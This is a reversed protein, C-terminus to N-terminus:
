VIALQNELLLLNPLLLNREPFFMSQSSLKPFHFSGTILIYDYGVVPSSVIEYVRWEPRTQSFFNLCNKNHVKFDDLVIVEFPHSSM